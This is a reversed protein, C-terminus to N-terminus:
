WGGTGRIEMSDPQTYQDIIKATDTFNKYVFFMRTRLNIFVYHSIPNKKTSVGNVTEINVAKIEEIVSSDKYWIKFGPMIGEQDYQGTEINYHKTTMLIIGSNSVALEKQPKCSIFGIVIFFIQIIFFSRPM